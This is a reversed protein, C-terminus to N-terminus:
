RILRSLSKFHPHSSDQLWEFLVSETNTVIVGAQRMRQLANAHNQHDRSCVADSVIFVDYGWHM